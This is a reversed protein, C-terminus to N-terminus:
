RNVKIKIDFEFKQKAGIKSFYGRKAAKDPADFPATCPEPAINYIDKFEGNNLWVGLYSLKEKDYSFVLERGCSYRVSFRGEVMKELYYFKYAAGRKAEYGM